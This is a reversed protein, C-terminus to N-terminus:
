VVYTFFLYHRDTFPLSVYTPSFFKVFIEPNFVKDEFILDDIPVDSLSRLDRDLFVEPHLNSTTDDSLLSKLYLIDGESDYYGDKFNNIEDVDGGPDFCEDENVDSPPTVLLDSEDLTSDYYDKCEIDELVEDFLPNVDSSIYEDDFEFLPNLYIKVNDEPVDEDSLLEDDSPLICESDNGSTDGSESPIAVLDEVSSNIFEDSEKESIASLDENEMILYDEPDETPLVPPSTTIVISPPIQYIIENLPITREEYDYDDDVDYCFSNLRRLPETINISLNAVFPVQPPCDYGYHADNGCLECSYTQYQPQPPYDSLIRIQIMLSHIKLERFAFHVFDVTYRAKVRLLHSAKM